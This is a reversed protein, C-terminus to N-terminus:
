LLHNAIFHSREDYEHVCAPDIKGFLKKGNIVDWLQDYANSILRAHTYLLMGYGTPEM